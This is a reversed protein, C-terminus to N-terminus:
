LLFSRRDLYETADNRKQHAVPYDTRADADPEATRSISSVKKTFWQLRSEVESVAEEGEMGQQGELDIREFTQRVGFKVRDLLGAYNSEELRVKGALNLCHRHFLSRAEPTDYRSM